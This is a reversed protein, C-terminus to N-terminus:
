CKESSWLNHTWFLKQWCILLWIRAKVINLNFLKRKLKNVSIISSLTLINQEDMINHIKRWAYLPNTIRMYSHQNLQPKMSIMKFINCGYLKKHQVQWHWTNQKLQLYHWVLNNKSRWSVAAGSLKFLYGSTSRRDDLDGAWDADSYGMFDTVKEKDYLLGYNRTGNLYHMIHKISKWHEMTPKSCFRAVNSVVNAIDSRIRTSLYLLSGIASQYLEQNFLKSDETAKTLKAGTKIPTATPKFNEMQFRKLVEATYAPQGIWIKESGAYAIKVGLFYHLKGIDKFNFSESISKIFEQLRTSSKSAQIIDDVYVAAIFIEGGSALTYICTNYISRRGPWLHWELSASTAYEMPPPPSPQCYPVLCFWVTCDSQHMPLSHGTFQMVTIEARHCDFMGNWPCRFHCM